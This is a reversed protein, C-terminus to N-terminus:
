TFYTRVDFDGTNNYVEMVMQHVLEIAEEKGKAIGVVFIDLKGYYPFLLENAEMVDFLNAPHSAFAICYVGLTLKKSNIDTVAKDKKKKMKDGVYLRTAWRIMGFGQGKDSKIM